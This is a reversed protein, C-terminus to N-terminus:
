NTLHCNKLSQLIKETETKIGIVLYYDAWLQNDPNKSLANDISTLWRSTNDLIRECLSQAIEVLRQRDNETVTKQADAALKKAQQIYQIVQVITQFSVVSM